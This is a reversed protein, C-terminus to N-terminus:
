HAHRNRSRGEEGDLKGEVAVRTGSSDGPVLTRDVTLFGAALEIKFRCGSRRPGRMDCDYRGRQCPKSNTLRMRSVTAVTRAQCGESSCYRGRTGVSRM